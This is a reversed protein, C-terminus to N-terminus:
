YLARIKTIDIYRLNFRTIAVTLALTRIYNYLIPPGSCGV